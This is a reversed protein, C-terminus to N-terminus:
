QGSLLQPDFYEDYGEYIYLHKYKLIRTVAMDVIDMSLQGSQARSLLEGFLKRADRPCLLMDCGAELAAQAIDGDSSYRSNKLGKMQLSDTIVLGQFGYKERLLGTIADRDLTAPMLYNEDGKEHLDALAIHGAMIAPVGEEIAKLFPITEFSEVQDMTRYNVALSLHTDETTSGHGPYHKYVPVVGRSLLGQALASAMRTVLEADSGFSRSSIVTNAASVNIDAVPAFDMNIGFVRCIEGLREGTKLALQPDGSNGVSLMDTIEEVQYRDDKLSRTRQVRGGEEDCGIFMPISVRERISRVLKLTKEYTSFNEGFLIFGGPQIDKLLSDLRDDMASRRYEIFLLQGIKQELTLRQEEIYYQKDMIFVGREDRHDAQLKGSGNCGTLSLVMLFAITIILFNKM